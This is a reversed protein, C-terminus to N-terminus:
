YAMGYYRLLEALRQEASQMAAFRQDFARQRMQFNQDDISRNREERRAVRGRDDEAMDALSGRFLGALNGAEVRSGSLGRRAMEASLDRVGAQLRMGGREKSAALAAADDPSEGTEHPMETPMEFTGPTQWRNWLEELRRQLELNPQNPQSPQSPQAPPNWGSTDPPPQWGGTNTHPQQGYSSWVNNPLWSTGGGGNPEWSGGAPNPVYRGTQADWVHGPPRVSGLPESRGTVNMSPM